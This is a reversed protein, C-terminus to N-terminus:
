SGASSPRHYVDEPADDPGSEVIPGVGAEALETVAADLDAVRFVVSWVGPGNVAPYEPIPTRGVVPEMLEVGPHSYTVVVNEDTDSRRPEGFSFGLQDEFM